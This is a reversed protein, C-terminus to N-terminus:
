LFVRGLRCGALHCFRYRREGLYEGLKKFRLKWHSDSNRKIKTLPYVLLVLGFVPFLTISSFKALQVLGLFIGGVAVNKWSPDKIFRLFYYFSFTMFAAIGVDTTVFHNHGLINPDFAYITLVLLGAGIGALERTWKFLFLGLLLSIIVFPLRAWFIIQDADNSEQWLLNRGADWQGNIDKTWFDKSTDLKPNIPLLMLGALDKLLPPHEPNLRMDHDRVYSYGAPIHATEDFIASDNKANLVSVTAMFLLIIAIIIKYHKELFHM